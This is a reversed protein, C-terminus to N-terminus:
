CPRVPDMGLRTWGANAFAEVFDTAARINPWGLCAGSIFQTMSMSCSWCPRGADDHALWAASPLITQAWRLPLAGAPHDTEVCLLPETFRVRPYDGRAKYLEARIEKELGTIKSHKEDTVVEHRVFNAKQSHACGKPKVHAHVGHRAFLANIANAERALLKHAPEPTDRWKAWWRALAETFEQTNIM